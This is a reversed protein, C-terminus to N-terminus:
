REGGGGGTFNATKIKNKENLQENETPSYEFQNPTGVEKNKAHLCFLKSGQELWHPFLFSTM